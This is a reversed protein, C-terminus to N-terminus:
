VQVPALLEVRVLMDHLDESGGLDSLGEAPTAPTLLVLASAVVLPKVIAM